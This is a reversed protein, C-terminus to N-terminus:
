PRLSTLHYTQYSSLFLITQYRSLNKDLIKVSESHCKMNYACVLLILKRAVDTMIAVLYYRAPISAVNTHYCDSNVSTGMNSEWTGMIVKWLKANKYKQSICLYFQSIPPNTLSPFLNVNYQTLQGIRRHSFITIISYTTKRSEHLIM